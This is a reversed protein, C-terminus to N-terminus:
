EEAEFGAPEVDVDELEVGEEVQEVMSEEIAPLQTGREHKMQEVKAGTMEFVYQGLHEVGEMVTEGELEKKGKKEKIGRQTPFMEGTILTLKDPRKFLM